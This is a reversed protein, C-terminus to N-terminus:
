VLDSPELQFGLDEIQKGYNQIRRTLLVNRDYAVDKEVRPLFLFCPKAMCVNLAKLEKLDVKLKAIIRYAKELKTLARKRPPCGYYGLIFLKKM